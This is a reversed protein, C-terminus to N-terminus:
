RRVQSSFWGGTLADLAATEEDLRVRALFLRHKPGAVAVVEGKKKKKKKGSEVPVLKGGEIAEIVGKLRQREHYHKNVEALLMQRERMMSRAERSIQIQDPNFILENLYWVAKFGINQDSNANQSYTGEDPGVTVGSSGVYVNNGIDIDVDNKVRRDYEVEFRPMLASLRARKKWRKVERADMNHYTLAIRQVQVVNPEDFLEYESKVAANADVAAVSILVVLISTLILKM